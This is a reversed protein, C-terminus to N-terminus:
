AVCSFHHSDRNDSSNASENNRKSSGRAWPALADTPRCSPTGGLCIAKPPKLRIPRFTEVADLVIGRYVRKKRPVFQVDYRGFGGGCPTAVDLGQDMQSFNKPM